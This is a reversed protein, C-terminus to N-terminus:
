NLGWYNKGTWSRTTIEVTETDKPVLVFFVYGTGGVSSTELDSVVFAPKVTTGEVVNGCFVCAFAPCWDERVEVALLANETFTEDTVTLPVLQEAETYGNSEQLATLLQTYEEFSSLIKWHEEGLPLFPTAERLDYRCAWRPTQSDEVPYTAKEYLRVFLASAEDRLTIAQPTFEIDLNPYEPNFIDYGSLAYVHPKAWKPINVLNEYAGEVPAYKGDQGILELYRHFMVALEAHTVVRNPGFIGNGYGSVISNETAWNVAKSYYSNPSVDKFAAPINGLIKEGTIKEHVRALVTVTQARTIGQEPSFTTASTGSFFGHQVAQGLYDYYWPADPLDSFDATSVASVTFPVASICLAMGLSLIRRSLKNM